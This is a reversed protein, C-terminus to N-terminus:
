QELVRRLVRRLTAYQQMVGETHVRAYILDRIDRIDRSEGGFRGRFVESAHRGGFEKIHEKNM